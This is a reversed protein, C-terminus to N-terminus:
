KESFIPILTGPKLDERLYHAPNTTLLGTIQYHGADYPRVYMKVGRYCIMQAATDAQHAEETFQPPMTTYYCDAM